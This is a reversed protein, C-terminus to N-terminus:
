VVAIGAMIIIITIIIIIALIIIIIIIILSGHPIRRFLERWPNDELILQQSRPYM